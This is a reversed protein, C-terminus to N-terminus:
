SRWPRTPRETWRSAACSSISPIPPRSSSSTARRSQSGHSGAALVSVQRGQGQGARAPRHRGPLTTLYGNRRRANETASRYRDPWGSESRPLGHWLSNRYERHARADRRGDANGLHRGPKSRTAGFDRLGPTIRHYRRCPNAYSLGRHGPQVEISRAPRRGGSADSLRRSNSTVLGPRSRGPVSGATVTPQLPRALPNNRRRHCRSASQGLAAGVLNAKVNPKM